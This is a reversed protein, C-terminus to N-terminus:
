TLMEDFKEQSFQESLKWPHRVHKYDIQKMSLTSRHLTLHASRGIEIRLEVSERAERGGVRSGKEGASERGEPRQQKEYFPGAGLGIPSVYVVTKANQIGEDIRSGTM